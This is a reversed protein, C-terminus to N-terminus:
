LDDVFGGFTGDPNVFVNRWVIEDGNYPDFISDYDIDMERAKNEPNLNRQIQIVILNDPDDPTTANAALWDTQATGSPDLLETATFPWRATPREPIRDLEARLDDEEDERVPFANPKIALFLFEIPQNARISAVMRHYGDGHNMEDSAWERFSKANGGVIYPWVPKGKARLRMIKRVRQEDNPHLEPDLPDGAWGMKRWAQIISQPAYTRLTYTFKRVHDDYEDAEVGGDPVMYQWVAEKARQPLQDYELARGSELLAEVIQTPTNM